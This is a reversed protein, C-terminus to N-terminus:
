TTRTKSPPATLLHRCTGPSARREWAVCCYRAAEPHTTWTAVATNAIWCEGEVMLFHDIAEVLLPIDEPRYVVDSCIVFDFSEKALLQPADKSALECAETGWLLHTAIMSGNLGLSDDFREANERMQPIEADDGDSAVAEAGLSAAIASLLGSGAGLELVGM